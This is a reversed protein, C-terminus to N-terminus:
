KEEKNIHKLYPCEICDYQLYDTNHDGGSLGRCGDEDAIGYKISKRYCKDHDFDIFLFLVFLIVWIVILLIFLNGM